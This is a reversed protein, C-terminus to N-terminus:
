PSRDFIVTRLCSGLRLCRAFIKEPVSLGGRVVSISFDKQRQGANITLTTVQIRLKQEAFTARATDM